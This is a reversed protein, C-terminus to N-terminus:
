PLRAADAVHISRDRKVITSDDRWTSWSTEPRSRALRLTDICPESHFGSASQRHPEVETLQRAYAM